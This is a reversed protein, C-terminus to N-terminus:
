TVYTQASYKIYMYYLARDADKSDSGIVATDYEYCTTTYAYIHLEHMEYESPLSHMYQTRELVLKASCICSLLMTTAM